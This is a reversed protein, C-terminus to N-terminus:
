QLTLILTGAKGRTLLVIRDLSLGMGIILPREHSFIGVRPVQLM